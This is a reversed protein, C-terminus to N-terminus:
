EALGATLAVVFISTGVAPNSELEVAKVVRSPKPNTWQLNYLYRKQAINQPNAVIVHRLRNNEIQTVAPWWDQITAQKRMREMVDLHESGNAYPIIDIAAQGGDEYLIRYQGVKTSKAWGCGHLFHLVRVKRGVPVVVKASLERGSTQKVRTSRLAICALKGDTPDLIEFPVGQITQKGGALWDLSLGGVGMWGDKGRLPRNAHARLDIPLWSGPKVGAIGPFPTHWNEQLAQSQKRQLIEHARDADFTGAAARPVPALRPSDGTLHFNLNKPDAFQPDAFRSQRDQASVSRWEALDMPVGALRFVRSTSANFWINGDSALTSIFL